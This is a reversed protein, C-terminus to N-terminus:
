RGEEKESQFRERLKGHLPRVGFVIMAETKWLKPRHSCRFDGYERSVWKDKRLVQIMGNECDM